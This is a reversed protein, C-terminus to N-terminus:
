KKFQIPLTYKVRVPEGAENLGPNFRKILNFVRLAETDLSPLKGKKQIKVDTLSGDKEVVFQLIVFGDVGKQKADAPYKLNKKIFDMLAAQGGPYQPQTAAVDYIKNDNNSKTQKTNGSSTNTSSKQTTTKPAKVGTIGYKNATSAVDFNEVKIQGNSSVTAVQGPSLTQKKSGKNSEVEMSGELLLVRSTKGDDELVYTTGTPTAVCNTMQFSPEAARKLTKGVIKGKYVVWRDSGNSLRKQLLVTSSGLIKLVEYDDNNDLLLWDDSGTYIYDNYYIPELRGFSVDLMRSKKKTDSNCMIGVTGMFNNVYYNSFQGNCKLCRVKAHIDDWNFSGPSGSAEKTVDWTVFCSFNGMRGKYNMEMKVQKAKKPVTASVTSSVDKTKEKLEKTSGDEMIAYISYKVEIYNKSGVLNKCSATVTGGPAVEGDVFVNMNIMNTGGYKVESKNTVTGGSFSYEMKSGLGTMTGKYSLASPAKKTTKKSKPKINLFIEVSITGAIPTHYVIDAKIFDIKGPAKGSAKIPGSTSEEKCYTHDKDGVHMWNHQGKAGSTSIYFDSGEEIEFQLEYKYAGDAEVTNKNTKDIKNILTAGTVTCKLTANKYGKFTYDTASVPLALAFLALAIMVRCLLRVLPAKQTEKKM